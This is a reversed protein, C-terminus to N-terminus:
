CLYKPPYGSLHPTVQSVISFNDDSIDKVECYMIEIKHLFFEVAVRYMRVM